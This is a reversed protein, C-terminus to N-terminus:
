RVIELLPQGGATLSLYMPRARRNMALDGIWSRIHDHSPTLLAQKVEGTEGDIAAVVVSGARVDLGVRTREGLM